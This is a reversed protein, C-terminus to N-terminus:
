CLRRSVDPLFAESEFGSFDVPQVGEGHNLDDILVAPEVSDWSLAAFRSRLPLEYYKVGAQQVVAERFKVFRWMLGFFSTQALLSEPTDQLSFVDQINCDLDSNWLVFRYLRMADNLDATLTGLISFSPLGNDEKEDFTLGMSLLSKIM